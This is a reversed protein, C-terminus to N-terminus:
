SDKSPFLASLQSMGSDPSTLVTPGGAQDQTHEIVRAMSAQALVVVDCEAALESFATLLLRDHM